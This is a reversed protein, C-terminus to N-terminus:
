HGDGRSLICHWSVLVFTISSGVRAESLFILIISTSWVIVLWSLKM